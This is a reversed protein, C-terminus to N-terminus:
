HKGYITRKYNRCLPGSVRATKVRETLPEFSTSPERMQARSGCELFKKSFEFRSLERGPWGAWFGGCTSTFIQPNKPRKYRHEVQCSLQGQCGLRLRRWFQARGLPVVLLLPRDLCVSVCESISPDVESETVSYATRLLTPYGNVRDHSPNYCIM